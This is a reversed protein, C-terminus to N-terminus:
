ATPFKTHKEDTVVGIPKDIGDGEHLKSLYAAEEEDMCRMFCNSDLKMGTTPAFFSQYSESKSLYRFCHGRRRCIEDLNEGTMGQCKAIDVM